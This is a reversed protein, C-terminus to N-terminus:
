QKYMYPVTVVAFILLSHRECNRLEKHTNVESTEDEDSEEDSLFAKSDTFIFFSNFLETQNSTM